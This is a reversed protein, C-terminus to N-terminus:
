RSTFLVTLVLPALMVAGQTLDIIRSGFRQQGDVLTYACPRLAYVCVLPENVLGGFLVDYRLMM